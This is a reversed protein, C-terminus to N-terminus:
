HSDVDGAEDGVEFLVGGIVPEMHVILAV